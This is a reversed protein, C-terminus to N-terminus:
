LPNLKKQKKLEALGARGVAMMLADNKSVLGKLMEYAQEGRLIPVIMEKRDQNYFGDFHSDRAGPELEIFYVLGGAVFLGTLSNLQVIRPSIVNYITEGGANQLVVAAVRYRDSDGADGALLLQRLSEGHKPIKGTQWFRGNAIHMRWFISMVLLKFRDYSFNFVRVANLGDPLRVNQTQMGNTVDQGYLILAGARELASIHENDCTNCLLNPEHFGSQIPRKDVSGVQNFLVLRESEALLPKYMFNPIIHSKKLLRKHEHCLQCIGEEM